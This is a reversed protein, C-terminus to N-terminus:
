THFGAFWLPLYEASVYLTMIRQELIKDILENTICKLIVLFSQFPFISCHSGATDIECCFFSYGM